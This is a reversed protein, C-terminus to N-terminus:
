RPGAVVRVVSGDARRWTMRSPFADPAPRPVTFHTVNQRVAVTRTVQRGYDVSRRNPGRSARRSFVADISAVGDPVVVTLESRAPQRRRGRESSQLSGQTRFRELDFPGGAGGGGTGVDLGEQAPAVAPPREDRILAALISLARRRVAAPEQAVLGGLVGRVQRQCRDYDARLLGLRRTTLASMLTIETGDPATVIRTGDHGVTAFFPNPFRLLRTVAAREADTAPRRFAAIVSSVEPGAGGEVLEPAPPREAPRCSADARQVRRQAVNLLEVARADVRRAAPDDAARAAAPPALTCCAVIVLVTRRPAPM